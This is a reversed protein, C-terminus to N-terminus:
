FTVRGAYRRVPNANLFLSGGRIPRNIPQKRGRLRIHSVLLWVSRDDGGPRVNRKPDNGLVEYQAVKM